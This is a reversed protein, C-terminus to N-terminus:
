LARVKQKLIRAKEDILASHNEHRLIEAELDGVTKLTIYLPHSGNVVQAPLNESILGEPAKCDAEKLFYEIAQNGPGRELKGEQVLVYAVKALLKRGVPIGACKVFHDLLGLTKMRDAHGPEELLMQRAQKVFSHHANEAATKVEFIRDQVKQSLLNVKEGATKLQHKVSATKDFVEPEVGFAKFPDFSNAESFKPPVFEAAVKVSGGDLQLNKIAQAADALPFEAAFYKETEGAYKHNHILKNTETALIQVEHPTLEESKAIKTLNETPLVGGSLYSNAIEGALERFDEISRKPEVLESTDFFM